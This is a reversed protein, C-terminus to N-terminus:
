PPPAADARAPGVLMWRNGNMYGLDRRPLDVYPKSRFWPILLLRDGAAIWARAAADEDVVGVKGSYGFTAVPRPSMLVFQERWNIMGLERAGLKADVRAMFARPSRTALTPYGLWGLAFWAWCTIAVFAIVGRRRLVVALLVAGVGIVLLPPAFDTVVLNQETLDRAAKRPLQICMAAAAGALTAGAIIGALGLALRAVDSRRILGAILPAMALAVAPLAPFIYVGRKAPSVSFFLVILTAVGLLFWQRADGRRLRRWWPAAAWPLLLTLPLWLVPANKLYHWFPRLHHDPDAFRKATQKVLIDDSYAILQPDSSGLAHALMPVLWAGVVAAMAVPGLAWRWWTGDIRAAGPLARWRAFAWPILALLPLFGVGKAIVGLGMAACGSWWWPWRPGLLLHRAMGYLGFTTCAVLLMDIQAFRAQWAFQTTVVLALAGALAARRGWLRAALDHVLALTALAAALSPLLFGVRLGTAAQAIASLWMFLPPKDPYLEGNRYPILWEGTALMDRAILAFRPEDPAWPDRLGLGSSFVILALGLLILRDRSLRARTRPAMIALRDLAGTTRGLMRVLYRANRGPAVAAVADPRAAARAGPGATPPRGGGLAGSRSIAAEGPPRRPSRKV